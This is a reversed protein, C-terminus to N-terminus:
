VLTQFSGLCWFTSQDLNQGHERSHFGGHATIWRGWSKLTAHAPNRGPCSWWPLGEGRRQSLCRMIRAPSLAAQAEWGRERETFRKRMGPPVSHMM